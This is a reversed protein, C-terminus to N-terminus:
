LGIHVEDHVAGVALGDEPGLWGFVGGTFGDLRLQAGVTVNLRGM